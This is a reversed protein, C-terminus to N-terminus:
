GLGMETVAKQLEGLFYAEAPTRQHGRRWFLGVDDEPQEFAVDLLVLHGTEEDSQYTGRPLFIVADSDLLLARTIGLASMEIRETPLALGERLFLSEIMSRIPSANVPLIWSLELLDKLRLGHRESLPHGSRAFVAWSQRFLRKTALTPDPRHQNLRGIVFDLQGERLSPIMQDYLGEYVSIRIGPRQRRVQMLARPLPGSAGNPLSGIALQGANARDLDAIGQWAARMENLVARAHSVFVEGEPTMVVGRSKRQFLQVGLLREVEHVARSVAPQTMNLARAAGLINQTEAVKDLFQMHRLSLRSMLMPWAPNEHPGSM